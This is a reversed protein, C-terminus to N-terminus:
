NVGGTQKLSRRANAPHLFRELRFPDRSQIRSDVYQGTEEHYWNGQLSWVFPMEESYDKVRGAISVVDGDNDKYEGPSFM